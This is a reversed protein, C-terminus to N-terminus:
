AMYLTRGLACDGNRMGSMAGAFGSYRVRMCHVAAGVKAAASATNASIERDDLLIAVVFVDSGLRWRSVSYGEGPGRLGSAYDSGDDSAV